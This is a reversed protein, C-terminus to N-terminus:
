PNPKKAMAERLRARSNADQFMHKRLDQPPPLRYRVAQEREKWALAMYVMALACISGIATLWVADSIDSKRAM